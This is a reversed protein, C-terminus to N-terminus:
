RAATWASKLASLEIALQNPFDAPMGPYRTPTTEKVSKVIRDMIHATLPGQTKRTEVFRRITFLEVRRIAMHKM